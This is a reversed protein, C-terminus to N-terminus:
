RDIPLHLIQYRLSVPEKLAREVMNKILPQLMLGMIKNYVIEPLGEKWSSSLRNLKYLASRIFEEVEHM